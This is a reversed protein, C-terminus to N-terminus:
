VPLWLTFTSGRGVESEVEVGGRHLGAIERVIPLGLGSGVTGSKKAASGRFFRDFIRGKEEDPIGYGTDTVIVEVRGDGAATRVVVWGGAPTYNVANVVLNSVARQIQVRDATVTPLDSEPEFALTVGKATAQKACRSVVEEVVDNLDLPEPEFPAVGRELRSLDLLDEVLEALLDAEQALMRLHEAQKESLPERRLLDVYLRITTVPTRLEHAADAIFQSKLRDLEKLHTIDTLVGVFAVSRGDPGLIPNVALQADYRTGDKRLFVGEGTWKRGVRLSELMTAFRERDAEEALWIECHHGRMEEISYGTIEEAAPNMYEVRGRLDTVIVGEGISDLIAQIREREARLEATREEVRQELEEAYARLTQHLRANEIATAIHGALAEMAQVDTEDFVNPQRSQIDLVGILRDRYQIPVDLEAQTEKIYPAIYRPEQRVDNALLTERLFAAWGIMGEKLKQRFGVPTRGAFIGAGTTFVLEQVDPDFLFVAVYDYKFTQVIRETTERLLTDLDHVAAIEQVVESVLALREALRHAREYLRANELAVAVQAAIATLLDREHEGYARPTTYSQVGIVGIVRDQFILPVGLWSQAMPGIPEVGLEKLRQSVNEPILLPERTRIVYETLGRGRRRVVFPKDVKGEVVNLVFTVEDREEDYLAVYFNTIDLLRSAQRYAEEAVEEVRLHSSLARGLDNLAELERAHSEMAQFMEANALALAAYDALITLLRRDEEDFGDLERSEANLVGLVKGRVALPLCLESSMGLETAFYRPDKRVDPLYIPRGSRAVASIISREADLPLETLEVPRDVFAHAVRVLRKREAELLWLGCVDFGLSRQAAEVVAQCIRERDFTLVLSQGLAHIAEMRAAYRIARDRSREGRRLNEVRLRLETSASEATRYYLNDYMEAGLAVISHVQLMDLLLDPPFRRRNYQCIALCKSRSFFERLKTEYEVLRECGPLDQLAWTMEGTVRLAAYGEALARETEEKLFAIMRDPDFAGGRLYVEDSPLIVLQGRELYPQPDVGSARLYDLITETTQEDVIVVVKENRELGQLLFPTLLARYEQETEYFCCLHDGPKLDEIAPM